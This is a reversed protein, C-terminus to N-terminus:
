KNAKKYAEKERKEKLEIIDIEIIKKFKETLKPM